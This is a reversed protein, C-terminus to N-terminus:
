RATGQRSIRDLTNQAQRRLLEPYEPRTLPEIAAADSPEGILYLARLAEWQQTQDSLLTFLVQGKRVTEGERAHIREVSGTIPSRLLDNENGGIRALAQGHKTDDGEFVLLQLTGSRDSLLEWPRLISTIESKGSRDGLRVLSLAANRRVMPEPDHVLDLLVPHFGPYTPDEGMLWALTIRVEKVPHQALTILSPHWLRASADGRQLREDIQELAHQVRRPKDRDALYESVESDSLRTGFWTGRWFLFPIIVFVVIALVAM